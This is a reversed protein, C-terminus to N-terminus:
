SDLHPSDHFYQKSISGQRLLNMENEWYELLSFRRFSSEEHLVLHKHALLLFCAHTLWPPSLHMQCVSGPLVGRPSIHLLQAPHLPLESPHGSLHLRSIEHDRSENHSVKSHLPLSFKQLPSVM